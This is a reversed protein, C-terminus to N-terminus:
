KPSEPTDLLVEDGEGLGELIETRGGHERGIRVMREVSKSDGTRVLVSHGEGDDRQRVAQSPVAIARERHYPTLIVSCAMGAAIRDTVGEAEITVDFVGPSVPLTSVTRVRATFEMEPYGTPTITGELGDRLHHLEKEPLDARVFLDDGGVVTMLTEGPGPHGGPRLTATARAIGDWRGRICRGHYIVGATCSQVVMRALDKRLRDRDDRWREHQLRTADLKLRTRTLKSQLSERRTQLDLSAKRTATTLSEEQRPLAVELNRLSDSETLEVEFTARKVSHRARKLIIEETEETLDDAHYMKELQELEERTYDLHNRANEVASRARKEALPRTTKVFRLLNEDAHQASREASHIDLLTKKQLSRLEHEAAPIDVEALAIDLELDRIKKQLDRTDFRIVVEGAHVRAGHEVAEIVELLKWIEPRVAIETLRPSEFIGELTVDVSFPAERVTYTATAPLAPAVAPPTALPSETDGALLVCSGILFCGLRM